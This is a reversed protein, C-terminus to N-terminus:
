AFEGFWSAQDDSLKLPNNDDKLAELTIAPFGLGMGSSLVSANALLSCVIKCPLFLLFSIFIIKNCKIDYFSLQENHHWDEGSDVSIEARGVQGAWNWRRKAYLDKSDDARQPHKSQQADQLWIICSERRIYSRKIFSFINLIM